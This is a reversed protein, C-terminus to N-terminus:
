NLHILLYDVIMNFNCNKNLKEICRECLLINDSLKRCTITDSKQESSLIKQVLEHYYIIMYKLMDNFEDKNDSFYESFKLKDIDPMNDFNDIFYKIKDFVKLENESNIKIRKVRSNVTDILKDPFATILFITVYLPPEELTKLICNQAQENMKDAGLIVYVKRSSKIPKVAVDSQMDRIQNVKINKDDEAIILKYDVNNQLDKSELIESAFDKVQEYAYNINGSVVLYAHNINNIDFFM